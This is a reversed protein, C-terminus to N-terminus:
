KGKSKVYAKGEDFGLKYAEAFVKNSKEDCDGEDDFERGALADLYGMASGRGFQVGSLFDVSPNDTEKARMWKALIDDTVLVMEM